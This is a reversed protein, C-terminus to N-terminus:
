IVTWSSGDPVRVTVGDAVIIPGVSFGGSGTTICYNISISKSHEYIGAGFNVSQRTNPTTTGLEGAPLKQIQQANVYDAM